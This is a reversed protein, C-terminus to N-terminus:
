LSELYAVLDSVEGDTLRLPALSSRQDYFEVVERLTKLSGNHMYPATNRLDRMHPTNFADKLAGTRAAGHDLDREATGPPAITPVFTNHLGNDTLLPGAHCDICGGKGQFLDEGRRAAPSLTGQDFASVPPDLTELYAVLAAVQGATKETSQTDGGKFHSTITGVVFRNLQPGGQGAWGYPPTEAIGWLSPVDRPGKFDGERIPHVMTGVDPNTGGGAIHCGGCSEGTKALAVSNFLRRGEAALAAQSRTASTAEAARLVRGLEAPDVRGVGAHPDRSAESEEGGLVGTLLLVVAVLAVAAGALLALRTVV